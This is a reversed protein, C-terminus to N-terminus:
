KEHGVVSLTAGPSLRKTQSPTHLKRHVVCLSKSVSVESRENSSSVFSDPKEAAGTLFSPEAMAKSLACSANEARYLWSVMASPNESVSSAM